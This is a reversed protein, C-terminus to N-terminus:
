RWHGRVYIYRGGSYEYRPPMWVLGPRPPREWHGPEWTWHGRWVWNGGVWVYGAGPSATMPETVAPPPPETVYIERPTRGGRYVTRDSECAVLLMSSAAMVLGLKILSSQNM